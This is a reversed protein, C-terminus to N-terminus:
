NQAVLDSWDSGGPLFIMGLKVKEPMVWIIWSMVLNECCVNWPFSISESFIICQAFYTIHIEHEHHELEVSKQRWYNRLFGLLSLEKTVTPFAQSVSGHCNTTMYSTSPQSAASPPQGLHFFSMAGPPASQPSEQPHRTTIKWKQNEPKQSM